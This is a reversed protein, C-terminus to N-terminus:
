KRKYRRADKAVFGEYEDSHKKKVHQALPYSQAFSEKCWSCKYPKEGTHTVMHRTLTCKQTFKKGCVDCVFEKEEHTKKHTYLVTFDIFTKKCVSCSYTKEATHKNMHNRFAHQTCYSKWQCVTCSRHKKHNSGDEHVINMHTRRNRDSTFIKECVPCKYHKQEASKQEASKHRKMHPKLRHKMFDKGCVPCKVMENTLCVHGYFSVEKGCQECIKSKSIHHKKVHVKLPAIFGRKCKVLGCIPCQPTVGPWVVPLNYRCIRGASDKSSNMLSDSHCLKNTENRNSTSINGDHIDRHTTKLKNEEQSAEDNIELENNLPSQISELSQVLGLPMKGSTAGSKTSPTTESHGSVTCKDGHELTVHMRWEHFSKVLKKCKRCTWHGSNNRPKEIAPCQFSGRHEFMEELTLGDKDCFDCQLLLQQEPLLKMSILPRSGLQPQKGHNELVHSGVEEYKMVKGCVPCQIHLKSTDHCFDHLLQESPSSSVHNCVKCISSSEGHYHKIHDRCAEESKFNQHCQSCPFVSRVDLNFGKHFQAFHEIFTMRNMLVTGCMDCYMYQCGYHVRGIHCAVDRLRSFSSDCLECMFCTIEEQLKDESFLEPNQHSVLPSTVVKEIGESTKGKMLHFIHQPHRLSTNTPAHHEDFALSDDFSDGCVKCVHKLTDNSQVGSFLDANYSANSNFMIVTEPINRTSNHRIHSQRHRGIVTSQVETFCINCRVHTELDQPYHEKYHTDLAHRSLETAGCLQCQCLKKSIIVPWIVGKCFNRTKYGLKECYEDTHCTTAHLRWTYFNDLSMECVDCTWEGSEVNHHVKTCRKRMRHDHLEKETMIERCFGCRVASNVTQSSLPTQKEDVALAQGHNTLIHSGLWTFKFEKDCVPCPGISIKSSKSHCLMHQLLDTRSLCQYGCEECIFPYDHKQKLHEMYTDKSSFNMHCFTCPVLSSAQSSHEPHFHKMHRQYEVENCLVTECTDCLIYPRSYHARGIHAIADSISPFTPSTNCNCTCRFALLQDRPTNTMSDRFASSYINVLASVVHHEKGSKDIGKLLHFSDQPHFSGTQELHKDLEHKEKFGGGCSCPFWVASKDVNKLFEEMFVRRDAVFRLSVDIDGYDATGRPMGVANGLEPQVKMDSTNEQTNKKKANLLQLSTFRYLPLTTEKKPHETSTVTKNMGKDHYRGQISNGKEPQVKIDPINRPTDKKKEDLLQVVTPLPPKNQFREASTYAVVTSMGKDYKGQKSSHLLPPNHAGRHGGLYMSQAETFCKDYRSHKSGQPNHEKNYHEDLANVSFAVRGCLQCQYLKDYNIVPWLVAKCFNRTTHGLKECYEDTHCTTAHLRWAYFNDLSMDCVDCTWQGSEVNHHVKTCRKRMRHKDLEKTTMIERCFGCRVGFNVTQSSLSTQKKDVALVQGHNSIIHNGLLNFSFEKDCVPCPGTSIGSCKSHCLMHQLLDTRSLCQYGCEVCKLPDNHKQKLHNIYVDKSSFNMDCFTCPVLSSAQSRHEPHFYKMHRHYEVENCLVTECIDCLIYPRSCHARGIHAIADCLSHFTPSNKCNCKFTLLQDRPTNTIGDRFASSYINVLASVVHHEKGSKDIGKLLHFSDQPHFVGTRQLHKDLEHKEKFGGGCSCPFWVASNDVNKLFEEMFVRRDAVFRLSVDIDGHDATGRPTAIANGLEPQVILDSTNNPHIRKRKM